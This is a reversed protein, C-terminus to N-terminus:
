GAAAADLKAIYDEYATQVKAPDLKAKRLIPKVFGDMAKDAAKWKEPSRSKLAKQGHDWVKQIEKSKAKATTMDGAKYANLIDGAMVRYPTMEDTETAMKPKQKKAQSPPAQALAEVTFAITALFCALLAFLIPYRNTKMWSGGKLQNRNAKM